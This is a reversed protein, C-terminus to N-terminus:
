KEQHGNGGLHGNAGFAWKSWLENTGFHGNARFHGNTGIRVHENTGFVDCKDLTSMQGLQGIGM